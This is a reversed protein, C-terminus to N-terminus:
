TKEIEFDVKIENMSSNQRAKTLMDSLQDTTLEVKDNKGIDGLGMQGTKIKTDTVYQNLERLEKYISTISSTLLSAVQSLYPSSGIKQDAKLTELMEVNLKILNKLGARLEEQDDLIIAIANDSTKTIIESKKDEITAIQNNIKSIDEEFTTGLVESIKEMSDKLSPQDNKKTSM